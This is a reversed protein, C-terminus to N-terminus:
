VRFGLGLGKVRVVKVKSGIDLLIPEVEAASAVRPLVKTDAVAGGGKPGTRLATVDDGRTRVVAM